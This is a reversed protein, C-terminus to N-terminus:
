KKEVIGQMASCYSYALDSSIAPNERKYSNVCNLLSLDMKPPQSSCGAIITSIIVIIAIAFLIAAIPAVIYRQM